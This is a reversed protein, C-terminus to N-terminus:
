VGFGKSSPRSPLLRHLLLLLLLMLLFGCSWYRFDMGCVIMHSNALLRNVQGNNRHSVIQGNRQEHQGDIHGNEKISFAAWSSASFNDAATATAAADWFFLTRISTTAVAAVSPM